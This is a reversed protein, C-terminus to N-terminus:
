KREGEHKGSEPEVVVGNTLVCGFYLGGIMAHGGVVPRFQILYYWRDEFPHNCRSMKIDSLVFEAIDPNRKRVSDRALDIALRLNFPVPEGDEPHWVPLKILESETVSWRSEAGDSGSLMVLPFPQTPAGIAATLAAAAILLNFTM